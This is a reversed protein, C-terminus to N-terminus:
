QCEPSAPSVIFPNNLFDIKRAVTKFRLGIVTGPEDLFRLDSEDGDVVQFGNWKAPLQKGAFVIAVNGGAQLIALSERKNEAEGTYSFTIHLNSFERALAVREPVKTYEYFQVDPFHELVNRGNLAFRNPSLDSTGNLRVAFRDGAKIANRKASEIEAFLLANFGSPNLHLFRTKWIRANRIIRKGSQTELRVHGSDHLCAEICKATANPCVQFGSGKSPTLYLVLTRFGRKKGKVIKASSNVGALYTFPLVRKAQARTEFEFASLVDDFKTREM